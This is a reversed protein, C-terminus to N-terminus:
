LPFAAPFIVIGYAWDSVTSITSEGIVGAKEGPAVILTFKLEVILPLTTFSGMEKVM